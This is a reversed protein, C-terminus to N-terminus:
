NISYNTPTFERRRIMNNYPSYSMQSYGTQSISCGINCAFCSLKNHNGDHYQHPSKFFNIKKLSCDDKYDNYIFKGKERKDKAILKKEKKIQKKYYINKPTFNNKNYLKENIGKIDLLFEKPKKKINKHKPSKGTNKRNVSHINIVKNNKNVEIKNFKYSNNKDNKNKTKKGKKSEGFSNLPYKNLDSEKKDEHILQNNEDILKQNLDGQFTFMRDQNNLLIDNNNENEEIKEDNLKLTNIEYPKQSVEAGSISFKNIIQNPEKEGNKSETLNNNTDEININDKNFYYDDFNNKLYKKVNNNDNNLCRYNSNYNNMKSKFERYNFNDRSKTYRDNKKNNGYEKDDNYIINELIEIYKNGIEKKQKEIELDNKLIDCKKILEDKEKLLNNKSFENLSYENSSHYFSYHPINIHYLELNLRHPPRFESFIYLKKEYDLTDNNDIQINNDKELKLNNSENNIENENINNSDINDNDDQNIKIKINKSEAM